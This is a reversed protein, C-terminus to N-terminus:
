LPIQETLPADFEFDYATLSRLTYYLNWYTSLTRVYGLKAANKESVAANLDLISSRGLINLRQAIRHRQEARQDTLSAKRVTRAQMNFQLVLEQLQLLNNSHYIIKM